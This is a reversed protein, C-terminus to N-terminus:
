RVRTMRGDFDTDGYVDGQLGQFLRAIWDSWLGVRERAPVADTSMAEAKVGMTPEQATGGPMRPAAPRAPADPLDPRATCPVALPRARAPLCRGPAPELIGAVGVVEPSKGMVVRGEDAPTFRRVTTWPRAAPAAEMANGAAACVPGTRM